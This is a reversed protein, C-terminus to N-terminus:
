ASRRQARTIERNAYADVVARWRRVARARYEWWVTGLVAAGFTAAALLTQVREAGALWLWVGGATGLGFLAVLGLPSWPIVRGIENNKM